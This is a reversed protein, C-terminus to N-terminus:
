CQNFLHNQSDQLHLVGNESALSQLREMEINSVQM